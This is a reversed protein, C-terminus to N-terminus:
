TSSGRARRRRLARRAAQRRARQGRVRQGGRARLGRRQPVGRLQVRRDPAAADFAAAVAGDDTIDLEARSPALVEAGRPGLQAALDSALQGGGGTILVRDLSVARGQVPAIQPTIENLLELWRINYFRPDSLMTKDEVDISPSSAPSRRSWRARRSSASRAPSSPTRASTTARSSRPRSRARAHGPPRAAARLRRRADRARPDPLELAARQLDRRPRPRRAGGARRDDRRLRRARRRAAAVDLRRRAALAPRAAARGQRVHQGRPRLAHAPQLRLGHRQAAHGPVPGRERAGAPGGRRLAQVHRLRRAAQDARDRRADGPAPRRLALVVVRVRAARRRPRPLQAGLTETAIANMQWNAEPDYEATPDNSLGSLHIVGDVGDLASAPMDRVDAEVVEVRDIVHALPNRGWYLRDLIRVRYGRELLRETLVCGIYGAGGTVLVLQGPEPAEPALGNTRRSLPPLEHGNQSM